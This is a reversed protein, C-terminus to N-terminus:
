ACCAPGPFFLPHFVMLLLLLSAEPSRRGGGQLCQLSAKRYERPLPELDPLELPQGPQWHLGARGCLLSALRELRELDPSSSTSTVTEEGSSPEQPAFLEYWM